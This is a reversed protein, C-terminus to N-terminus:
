NPQWALAGVLFHSAIIHFTLNCTLIKWSTDCYYLGVKTCTHIVWVVAFSLISYIHFYRSMQGHVLKINTFSTTHWICLNHVLMRLSCTLLCVEDCTWKIDKWDMYSQWNTWLQIFYFMIHLYMWSSKISKNKGFIVQSWKM